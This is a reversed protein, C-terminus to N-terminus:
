YIIQTPAETESPRDFNKSYVGYAAEPVCHARCSNWSRGDRIHWLIRAYIGHKSALSLYTLRKQRSPNTGDIVVSRGAQLNEIVFQPSEPNCLAYGKVSFLAATTSKGSGANGVLIVMESAGDHRPEINGFNSGLIDIPRYFVLGMSGALDSDVSSWRYPLYPDLPGVGDGCMFIRDISRPPSQLLGLLLSLMGASPKRFLDKGTAIFIFPSWGNRTQLDLRFNEIRNRVNSNFRSQNTIIAVIWGDTRLQQLKQPVPGLYVWATPDTDAYRKGNSSTILTGDLDFLAIKYSAGLIRSDPPLAEICAYYRCSGYDIWM